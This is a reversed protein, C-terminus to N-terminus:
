PIGDEHMFHNRIQEGLVIGDIATLIAEAVQMRYDLFNLRTSTTFKGEPFYNMFIKSNSSFCWNHIDGTLYGYITEEQFNLNIDISQFIM